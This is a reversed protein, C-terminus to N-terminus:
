EHTPPYLRAGREVQFHLLQGCERQQSHHGPESDMTCPSSKLHVGTQLKLRIVNISVRTLIEEEQSVLEIM